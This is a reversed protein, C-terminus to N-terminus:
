QESYEEFLQSFRLDAPLAKWLDKSIDPLISRIQEIHFDANMPLKLASILNEIRENAKAVEEM